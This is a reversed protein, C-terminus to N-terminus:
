REPLDPTRYRRSKEAEAGNKRLIRPIPVFHEFLTSFGYSKNMKQRFTGWKALLPSAAPHDNEVSNLGFVVM